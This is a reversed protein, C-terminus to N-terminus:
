KKSHMAFKSLNAIGCSIQQWQRPSHSAMPSPCQLARHPLHTRMLHARTRVRTRLIHVLTCWTARGFNGPIKTFNGPLKPFNGPLKPHARKHACRTRVPACAHADGRGGREGGGTCMEGVPRPLAGRRHCCARRPLPLLNAVAYCIKLLNAICLLFFSYRPM